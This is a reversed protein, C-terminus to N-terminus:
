KDLNFYFQTIKIPNEKKVLSQTSISWEMPVIEWLFILSLVLYSINNETNVATRQDVFVRKQKRILANNTEM